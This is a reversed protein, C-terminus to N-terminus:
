EVTHQALHIKDVGDRVGDLNTALQLIKRCPQENRLTLFQLSWEWCGWARPGGKTLKERLHQTLLNVALEQM